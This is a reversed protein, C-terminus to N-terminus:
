CTRSGLLSIRVRRRRHRKAASRRGADPQDDRALVTLVLDLGIGGFYSLAVTKLGRHRIQAALHTRPGHPHRQTLMTTLAVVRCHCWGARM